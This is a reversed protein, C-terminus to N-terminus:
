FHLILWNKKVALEINRKKAAPESVSATRFADFNTGLGPNISLKIYKWLKKM